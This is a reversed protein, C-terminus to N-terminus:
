LDNVMWIVCCLQWLHLGGLKRAPSKTHATCSNAEGMDWPTFFRGAICSVCSIHTQDRPQSSARSFSIVVWELIRPQFIGHVSSGPLSCDMPDCHTLCLQAFLVYVHTVKMMVPAKPLPDEWWGMECLLLGLTGASSLLVTPAWISPVFIGGSPGKYDHPESQVLGPPWQNGVTKTSSFKTDLM